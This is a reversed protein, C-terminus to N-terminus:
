AETMILHSSKDAKRISNIELLTSFNNLGTLLAQTKVKNKGTARNNMGRWWVAFNFEGVELDAIKKAFDGEDIFAGTRGIDDRELIAHEQADGASRYADEGPYLGGGCYM